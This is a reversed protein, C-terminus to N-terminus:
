GQLVPEKDREQDEDDEPEVGRLSDHDVVPLLRGARREYEQYIAALATLVLMVWFARPWELAADIFRNIGLDQEFVREIVWIGSVIALAVSALMMAPVYIRTRRLLFLLPFTLM